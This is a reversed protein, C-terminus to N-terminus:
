EFKVSLIAIPRRLPPPPHPPSTDLQFFFIASQFYTMEAVSGNAMFRDSQVSSLPVLAEEHNFVVHANPTCIRLVAKGLNSM